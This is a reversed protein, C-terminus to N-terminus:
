AADVNSTRRRVKRSLLSEAVKQVLRANVANGLAQCVATTTNPLHRLGDLSQLRCCEQPTMYRREWAIIPVQTTTMAVLSPATTARKIRVGSARFQIIYQWINRTEGKCNWELKQLSSDFEELKPLWPKIWKKNKSFFERNQRIFNQKWRPFVAERGRAHSPVRQMADDRFRCNLTRGFSGRFGRLKNLPVDYLSDYKSYPYNAGFEMAWIPFSPLEISKPAAQLFENWVTLCRVVRESIPRADRPRRDLM